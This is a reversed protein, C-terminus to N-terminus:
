SDKRKYRERYEEAKDKRIDDAIEWGFNMCFWLWYAAFGVLVLPTCAVRVGVLWWPIVRRLTV